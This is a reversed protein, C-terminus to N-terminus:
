FCICIDEGVRGKITRGRGIAGAAVAGSGGKKMREIREITRRIVDNYDQIDM